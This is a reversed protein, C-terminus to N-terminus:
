SLPAGQENYGTNVTILGLKCVTLKFKLLELTSPELRKSGTEVVRLQNEFARFWVWRRVNM